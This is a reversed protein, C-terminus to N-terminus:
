SFSLLRTELFNISIYPYNNESVFIIENLPRSEISIFGDVGKIDSNDNSLSLLQDYMNTKDIKKNSYVIFMNQPFEMFSTTYILKSINKNSLPITKYSNLYSNNFYDEYYDNEQNSTGKYFIADVYQNNGNTFRYQVFEPKTQGGFYIIENGSIPAIVSIEKEVYSNPNNPM